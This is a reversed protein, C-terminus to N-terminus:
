QSEIWWKVNAYDITWSPMSTDLFVSPWLLKDTAGPAMVDVENQLCWQKIGGAPTVGVMAQELDIIKIGDLWVRLIGDRTGNGTPGLWYVTWRHWQGNNVDTWWPGVPQAASSGPKTPDLSANWGSNMQGANNNVNFVVPHAQTGGFQSLSVQMRNAGQWWEFWKVGPNGPLGGGPSTRFWYQFVIPARAPPVTYGGMPRPFVWDSEQQGGGTGAISRITKEGNPGAIANFAYHAPDTVTNNFANGYTGPYNLTGPRPRTTGANSTFDSLSQYDAFNDQAVMTEGTSYTPENPDNVPAATVTVASTDALTGGSQTAIVRFTGTSSGATYLGGGSVTGGTATWAVAPTSTSGDSMTGSVTFQRTGGTTVSATGPSVTVKTLTVPATITVATTDALTGGSQTAIVRFSGATSGATYLGGSTITGGTPSYTVSPTTTAGNSLTGSVTFQQTAGTTVSVSTPLLIVQTLTAPTITIASTDALTGGAQTAIVRFSGATSGATYLGGATITGGTASYSVSVSSTTGNSMLGSVSFQQLTGALITVSAPTLIVQQLTPATITIASTDALGSTPETAIVRFTGATNGATYLGGASVSGGTATYTVTVSKSSSDSMQGSVSFQRTAGTQLTASAPTLVVQQLTPAPVSVGILSTDAFTGGSTQAIVRFNGATSGATFLGSSSVTGGTASWTVSVSGTSGDSMLGAATFQQTAGANVSATSPSVRVGTLTPASITIASTDAFTGGLQQAVVRYSGPTTGATYSGSTSITGGTASWTVSVPQSGGDSMTASASFNRTQGGTLTASAPSVVVAAVSVPAPTVVVRATDAVNQKKKHRALLTFTGTSSSRFTGSPSVTGGSAFWDVDVAVSDGEANLGMAHLRVSDDVDITDLKPQVEIAVADTSDPPAFGEQVTPEMCAPIVLLVLWLSRLHSAALRRALKFKFPM